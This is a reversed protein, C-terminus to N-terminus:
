NKKSNSFDNRKTCVKATQDQMIKIQLFVKNSSTKRPFNEASFHCDRNQHCTFFNIRKEDYNGRKRERSNTTSFKEPWTPFSSPGFSCDEGSSVSRSVPFKYFDFTLGPPHRHNQTINPPPFSAPGSLGRPPAHLSSGCTIELINARKHAKEKHGDYFHIDQFQLM